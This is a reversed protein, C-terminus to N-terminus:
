RGADNSPQRPPDAEAILHSWGRYASLHDPVNHVRIIDVGQECLRLSAGITALDKDQQELSSFNNMFSKRSHGILVRQGHQRFRSAHRLLELSQLADKGFGIGPDFIIRNLDLNAKDWVEIQELLWREVQECPDRDTPLTISRDAPLSLQHMAIWHKDNSGALEIMAPSSLGSVDNIIDVGVELAKAAVEPHYTDVSLLPSLLTTKYKDVLHGLIPELRLWEEDPALPTAGPRTSEAGVDVIHVGANVMADVHAEVSRWNVHRGGDSFSDPTINVIGMWLPIHHPLESSWELVTKEGLGPVTLRPQLAVLPTLVFGRKHVQPHPITLDANDISDRGWLLIDIDIPRPSWHSTDTRGLQNQIETIWDRLQRPSCGVDCVVALNLFPQNWAAPALKPLLAPSEVLPSIRLIRLGKQQLLEISRRLNDCRDGVNSGLGLFIEM